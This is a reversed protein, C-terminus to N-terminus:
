DGGTDTEALKPAGPIRCAASVVQRFDGVEQTGAWSIPRDIRAAMLGAAKGNYSAVKDAM